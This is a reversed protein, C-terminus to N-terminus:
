DQLKNLFDQFDQNVVQEHNSAVDSYNDPIQSLESYQNKMQASQNMSEEIEQM